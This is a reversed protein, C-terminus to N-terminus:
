KLSIKAVIKKLLSIDREDLTASKIDPSRENLKVFEALNADLNDISLLIKELATSNNLKVLAALNADLNNMSALIKELAQENNFKVLKSLNADLNNMSALIKESATGNNLKILKVLNADLNFMVAVIKELAANIAISNDQEQLAIFFKEIEANLASSNEDLAVINTSVAESSRALAHIASSITALNEVLGTLKNLEDLRVALIQMNEQVLQAAATVSDMATATSATPETIKNRLQQFQIEIRQHDEEAAQASKILARRLSIAALLACVAGIIWGTTDDLKLLAGFSMLAFFIAGAYGNESGNM